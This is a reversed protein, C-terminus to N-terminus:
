KKGFLKMVQNKNLYRSYGVVKSNKNVEHIFQFSVVGLNKEFHLWVIDNPLELKIDEAPMNEFGSMIMNYLSDIDNNLNEFAFSKVENVQMFKIDKYAFIYIKEVKTLNIFQVKGIEESKSSESIKIQSFGFSMFLLSLGLLVKKM